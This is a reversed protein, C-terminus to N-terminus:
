FRGNTSIAACWRGVGNRENDGETLLKAVGVAKFLAYNAHDSLAEFVENIPKNVIREVKIKFM